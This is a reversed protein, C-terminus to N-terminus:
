KNAFSPFLKKEGFSKFIEKQNNRAPAIVKIGKNKYKFPKFYLKPPYIELNKNLILDVFTNYKEVQHGKLNKNFNFSRKTSFKMFIKSYFSSRFSVGIDARIKFLQKFRHKRDDIIIKDVKSHPKFLETAVFSGFVIVEDPNLNEILKDVAGSAMVADGLWTPVEILLKM